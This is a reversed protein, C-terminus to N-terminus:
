GRKMMLLIIIIIIALGQFLIRMQMAKNQKLGNQNVGEGMLDAETTKLFTIVGRVLAVLTAIMAGILLIALFINM